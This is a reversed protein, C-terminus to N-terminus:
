RQNDLIITVVREIPVALINCIKDIKELKISENSNISAITTPHVGHERLASIVIGKENLTNFLPEYSIM